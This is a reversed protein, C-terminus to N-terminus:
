RGHWHRENQKKDLFRRRRSRTRDANEGRLTVWATAFAIAQLVDAFAYVVRGTAGNPKMLEWDSVYGTGTLRQRYVEFTVMVRAQAVVPAILPKSTVAEEFVERRYMKARHQPATPVTIVQPKAKGRKEQQKLWRAWSVHLSLRGATM